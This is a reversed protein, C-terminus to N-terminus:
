ASPPGPYWLEPEPLSFGEPFYATEITTATDAETAFYAFPVQGAFVGSQIMEYGHAAFQALREEWPIGNCDVLVHHVGEGHQFLFDAYISPGSVPQILEWMMSGAFAIALRYTMLAPAGRYTIESVTEPGFTFVQWPAVGLRTMGEMTRELDHSVTCVQIVNGVFGPELATESRVHPM